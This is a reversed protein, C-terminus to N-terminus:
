ILLDVAFAPVFYVDQGDQWETKWVYHPTGFANRTTEPRVFGEKGSRFEVAGGSKEPTVMVSVNIRAPIRRENM